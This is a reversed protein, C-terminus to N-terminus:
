PNREPAESSLGRELREIAPPVTKLTPDLALAHRYTELAARNMGMRDQTRGKLVELHSDAYTRGALQAESLAAPFRDTHYLVRALGFHLRGNLPNLGLGQRYKEEAQLMEGRDELLMGALYDREAAACRATELLLAGACALLALSALLRLAAKIRISDPAGEAPAAALPDYPGAGVRRDDGIAGPRVGVAAGADASRMLSPFALLTCILMLTPPMAFQINFLSDVLMATLGGSSAALWRRTTPSGAASLVERVEQRYSWLVWALAGFGLFGTELLLQLPDNHLARNNTWYSTWEPHAALFKAQLELYRLQYTGWGSGLFPHDALMPWSFRWLYTRGALRQGVTELLNRADLILPIILAPAVWGSVSGGRHNGPSGCLRAPAPDSWPKWIALGVVLGAALSGWAGRSGAGIVAALMSGAAVFGLVRVWVKRAVLGLALAPFFAGILYGAVFNPNGFTGYRRMRAVMRGWDVRYGGFLLPDHGSWQLLVILAAATGSLAILLGLRPAATEHKTLSVLLLVWAPGCLFYMSERLSFAHVPSNWCSVLGAVALLVLPPGLPFDTPWSLKRWILGLGWVALGLVILIETLCIKPYSFQEAFGRYFILPLALL